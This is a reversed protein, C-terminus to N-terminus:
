VLERISDVLSCLRYNEKYDGLGEEYALNGFAKNVYGTVRAMAKLAMSTGPIMVIKKGHADAIMRVLDSTNSWENNCPWFIGTEENEIMLRVFEALNKIYLMSRHNEVKPFVPLKLAMKELVPFNGKSGKGYIMPCRLIVVKYNEDALEVLGNEAQVKSDGYFNAPMRPTDRTIIKEKGIPASDGYVIASSMFIFQKVGEAKAKKAIHITLDTNVAYYKAKVEDSVNGVDSHAMGACHYIADYTSLDKERWKDDRVSLSDVIYKEPYQGLYQRVNTGVYSCAGTILVKKM